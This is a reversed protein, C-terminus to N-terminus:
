IFNLKLAFFNSFSPLFEGPFIDSFGTPVITLDFQTWSVMTVNEAVLGNLHTGNQSTIHTANDSFDASIVECTYRPGLVPFTKQKFDCEIKITSACTFFLFIVLIKM